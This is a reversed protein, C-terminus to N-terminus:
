KISKKDIDLINLDERWAKMFVKTNNTPIQEKVTADISLKVPWRQYDYPLKVLWKGEKDSKNVDSWHTANYDKRNVTLYNHIKESFDKAEKETYFICFLTM